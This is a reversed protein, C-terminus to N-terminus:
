DGCSDELMEHKIGLKEQIEKIEYTIRQIKCKIPDPIRNHMLTGNEDYYKQKVIRGPIGVVTAFDPVDEVVVSGAGVRVHNGLTINGLVKAGAGVIVGDMLTPHRKGKDKGTGGLTVQQYILVDNGIITTEGIVVGEGHDIFFREGIEAGPHIEIGTLIRMIFSIFRPIFPIKWKYLKHSLRHALLAHLGPYCFIVELINNAAPDKEYITKIDDKIHFIARDFM